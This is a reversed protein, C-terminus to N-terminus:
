IVEIIQASAQHNGNKIKNNLYAYGAVDRLKRIKSRGFTGGIIDGIEYRIIRVDCGCFAVELSLDVDEGGDIHKMLYTGM